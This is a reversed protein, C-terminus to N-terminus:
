FQSHGRAPGVIMCSPRISQAVQAVSDLGGSHNHDDIAHDSVVGMAGEVGFFEMFSGDIGYTVIPTSLRYEDGRLRPGGYETARDPINYGLDPAQWGAMPGLLTFARTPLVGLLLLAVIQVIFYTTRM